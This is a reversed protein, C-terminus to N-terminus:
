LNFGRLCKYTQEEILQYIALLREGDYVKVLPEQSKIKLQAGVLAPKVQTQELLITPLHKLLQGISIIDNEDVNELKKAENVDFNGIKTRRLNITTAFTELRSAIDNGLTRIYTGNSVHARITFVPHQYDILEIEYIEVVRPPVSVDINKHAYRYLPVGNVKIASTLPPIQTIKGIFTELVKELTEKNLLPITEEKVVEGELDLTTTLLGLKFSAIYEKDSHEIFPIAKTGENVAIIMLGTALPDLTGVHGVKRIGFKKGIKNDLSRSTMQCEKDIFFVGNLM